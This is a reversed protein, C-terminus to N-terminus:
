VDHALRHVAAKDRDDEAAKAAVCRDRHAAPRGLGDFDARSIIGGEDHLVGRFHDDDWAIAHGDGLGLMRQLFHALFQLGFANINFVRDVRDGAAHWAM